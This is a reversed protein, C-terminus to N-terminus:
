QATWGGDVPLASGTIGGADDSCLFLTLAAIESVDIFRGIPQKQAMMDDVVQEETLNDQSMRDRIQKEMLETRVWAPCIANCTIRQAAVEIAIQKTLGVVGHKAAIYAPKHISAVLGHVSAINVIRGWGRQMMSPLVAKSAHFVASLNVAIVEDWDSESFKHVPAVRQIGANNVLIDIPGLNERTQVLANRIQDPHGFDASFYGVRVGTKQQLQSRFLEIAGPEGFGNIAVNCGSEALAEAIAKGIGSTSGSVFAVKSKDCMRAM